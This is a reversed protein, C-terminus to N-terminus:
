FSVVVHGCIYASYPIVFVECSDEDVQILGTAFNNKQVWADGLKIVGKYMAYRVEIKKGKYTYVAKYVLSKGSKNIM